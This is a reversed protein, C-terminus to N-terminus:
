LNTVVWSTRREVNRFRRLRHIDYGDDGAMASSADEHHPEALSPSTLILVATVFGIM